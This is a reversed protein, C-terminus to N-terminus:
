PPPDLRGVVRVARRRRCRNPPLGFSGTFQRHTQRTSVAPLWWGQLFLPVLRGCTGAIRL